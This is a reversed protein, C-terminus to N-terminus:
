RMKFRKDVIDDYPRDQLLYDKYAERRGSIDRSMAEYLPNPTIINDNRGAAYFNYSSFHYQSLDGVIHARLPNREIYRGCELLYGDKDIYPSKYRGQFLNGTLKYQKKYHKAYAQTIAQMLRPLEAGVAIRLLLHIHNPMLCYHFLDFQFTLRYKRIIDKYAEYDDPSNFIRYRNHGRNIIHYVGNDVLVRHPRGM